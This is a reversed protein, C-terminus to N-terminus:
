FSVTAASNHPEQEHNQNSHSQSPESAVESQQVDILNQVATHLCPASIFSLAMSFGSIVLMSYFEAMQTGLNKLCVELILCLLMAVVVGVHFAADQLDPTMDYVRDQITKPLGKRALNQARHSYDYSSYTSWGFILRSLTM